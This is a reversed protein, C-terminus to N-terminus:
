VWFNVMFIWDKYFDDEPDEDGCYVPVQIIEEGDLVRNKSRLGKQCLIVVPLEKVVGSKFVDSM